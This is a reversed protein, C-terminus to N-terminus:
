LPHSQKDPIPNFNIFTLLLPGQSYLPHGMSSEKKPITTIVVYNLENAGPLHPLLKKFHLRQVCMISYTWSWKKHFEEWIFVVSLRQHYTLMPEPLWNHSPTMVVQASASGSRHWWIAGSPWLSNLCCVPSMSPMKFISDQVCISRVAFMIMLSIMLIKPDM